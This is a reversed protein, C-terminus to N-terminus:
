NRTCFPFTYKKFVQFGSLSSKIFDVSHIQADMNFLTRWSLRDWHKTMTKRREKIIEKILDLHKQSQWLNKHAFITWFIGHRQAILQLEQKYTFQIKLQFGDAFRFTVYKGKHKATTLLKPPM